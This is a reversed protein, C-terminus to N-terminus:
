QEYPVGGVIMRSRSPMDRGYSSPEPVSNGWSGQLDAQRVVRAARHGVENWVGGAVLAIVILVTTGVIRGFSWGDDSSPAPAPEPMPAASAPPLMTGMYLEHQARKADLEAQKKLAAAELEYLEARIAAAQQQRYHDM